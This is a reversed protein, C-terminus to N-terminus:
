TKAGPFLGSSAILMIVSTCFSTSCNTITSVADVTLEKRSVALSRLVSSGYWLSLYMALPSNMGSDTRVESMFRWKWLGDEVVGNTGVM